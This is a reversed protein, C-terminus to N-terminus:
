GGRRHPIYSSVNILTTLLCMLSEVGVGTPFTVFLEKAKERNGNSEVGVGTPFTVFAQGTIRDDESREVGV